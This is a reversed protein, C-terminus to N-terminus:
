FNYYLFSSKKKLFYFSYIYYFRTLLLYFKKSIYFHNINKININFFTQLKLPQFIFWNVIIWTQYRFIWLRMPYIISRKNRILYSIDANNYKNKLNQYRYYILFFSLSDEIYDMYYKLNWYKNLFFIMYNYLGYYIILFLFYQILKDSALFLSYNKSTYWMKNWFVNM